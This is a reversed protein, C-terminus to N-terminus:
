NEQSSDGGSGPQGTTPKNQGDTKPPAKPAPKGSDGTELKLEPAAQSEGKPEPRPNAAPKAESGTKLENAPAPKSDGAENKAAIVETKGNKASGNAGNTHHGDQSAPPKAKSGDPGTETAEGPGDGGKRTKLIM